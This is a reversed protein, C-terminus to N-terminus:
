SDHVCDFITEGIMKKVFFSVYLFVKLIKFLIVEHYKILDQLLNFIVLAICSLIFDCICGTVYLREYKDSRRNM